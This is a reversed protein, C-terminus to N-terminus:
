TALRAALLALLPALLARPAPREGAAVRAAAEDRQMEGGRVSGREGYDHDTYDHDPYDHDGVRLQLAAVAGAASCTYRGADRASLAALTLRSATGGAWRETDLSVGGRDSLPDITEGEHQWKIRLPPLAAQATDDLAGGAAAAYRAGCALRAAGGAAGRVARPGEVTVVVTPLASETVTLNFFLSMKPETNVQCEYRGADALRLRAIRLTHVTGGGPAAREETSTVDDPVGFQDENGYPDYPPLPASSEVCTVRSDATFVMGAHTLIQLDSSRVWSVARDALRLVRCSLDVSDGVRALVATRQRAAFAPGGGAAGRVARGAAGGAAGGGALVPLAALLLLLLGSDRMVDCM